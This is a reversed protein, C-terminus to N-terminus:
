RERRESTQPRTGLRVPIDLTEGKRFITLKVEKGAETGGIIRSFERPSSVDSGNVFLVVDQARVGMKEAPQDPLVSSVVVGRVPSLGM